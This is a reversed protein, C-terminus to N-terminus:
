EAEQRVLVWLPNAACCTNCMEQPMIAICPPVPARMARPHKCICYAWHGTMFLQAAELVQPFMTRMPAAVCRAKGRVYADLIVNVPLLIGHEGAQM